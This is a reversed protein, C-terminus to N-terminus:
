DPNAMRRAYQISPLSYEPDRLEAKWGQDRLVRVAAWGATSSVDSAIRLLPAGVALNVDSWVDFTGYRVGKPM